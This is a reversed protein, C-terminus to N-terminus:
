FEKNISEQASKIISSRPVKHFEQKCIYATRNGEGKSSEDVPISMNYDEKREELPISIGNNLVM